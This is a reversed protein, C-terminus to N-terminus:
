ADKGSGAGLDPNSRIEHATRSKADQLREQDLVNEFMESSLQALFQPVLEEETETSELLGLEAKYRMVNAVM